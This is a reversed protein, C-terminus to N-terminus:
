PRPSNARNRAESPIVPARLLFVEHLGADGGSFVLTFLVLNLVLARGPLQRKALPYAMTLTLVLQVVTGVATM